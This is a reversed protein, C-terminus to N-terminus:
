VRDPIGKVAGTDVDATNQAAMTENITSYDDGGLYYECVMRQIGDDMGARAWLSDKGLRPHWIMSFVLFRPGLM